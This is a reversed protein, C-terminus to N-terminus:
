RIVKSFILRLGGFPKTLTCHVGKLIERTHCTIANVNDITGSEAFSASLTKIDAAAGSLNETTRGTNDLIDSLASVDLSKDVKSVISNIGRAASNLSKATKNIDQQSEKTMNDISGLIEVLIGTAKELNQASHILSLKLSDMDNYSFEENMYNNFGSSLEGKIVSGNKLEFPAPNAPYILEIYDEYKREHIKKQKMRAQINDPLFMAKKNIQTQVCVDSSNKCPSIRKTRGIKFGNYYINIKEKTPRLRDFKIDVTSYSKLHTLLILFLTILLIFLMIILNRM